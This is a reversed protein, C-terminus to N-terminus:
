GRTLATSHDRETSKVENKWSQCRQVDDDMLQRNTLFVQEEGKIM